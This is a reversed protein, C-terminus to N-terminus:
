ARCASTAASASDLDCQLRAVVPSKHPYFAPKPSSLYLRSHPRRHLLTFTTLSNSDHRATPCCFHTASCPKRAFNHKLRHPQQLTLLQPHAKNARTYCLIHLPLSSRPRPHLFPRRLTPCATVIFPAVAQDARLTGGAHTENTWQRAALRAKRQEQGSWACSLEQRSLERLAACRRGHRSSLM